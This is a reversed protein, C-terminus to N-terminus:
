KRLGVRRLQRGLFSRIRTKLPPLPPQLMKDVLKDFDVVNVKKFFREWNRHKITAGVISPNGKIAHGYDSQRFKIM